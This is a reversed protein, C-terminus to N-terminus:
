FVTKDTNDLIIDLKEGMLKNLFETHRPWGLIIIDAMIEKSIRTIGSSTNYDITAIIDAKTETSSAEKVINELKNRARLINREAEHNNSVVSLISIPNSSKKDKILVS